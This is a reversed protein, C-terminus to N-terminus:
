LRMPSVATRAIFQLTVRLTRKGENGVDLGTHGCHVGLKDRQEVEVAWM